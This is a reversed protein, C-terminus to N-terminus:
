SIHLRQLITTHHQRYFLSRLTWLYYTYIQLAEVTYRTYRFFFTSFIISSNYHHFRQPTLLPWIWILSTITTSLSLSLSLYPNSCMQFQFYSTHVRSFFHTEMIGPLEDSKFCISFICLRIEDIRLTNMNVYIPLIDPLAVISSFACLISCHM